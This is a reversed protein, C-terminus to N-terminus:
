VKYVHKWCRNLEFDEDSLKHYNGDLIAILRDILELDNSLRRLKIELLKIAEQITMKEGFEKVWIKTNLSWSFSDIREIIGHRFAFACNLVERYATDAANNM